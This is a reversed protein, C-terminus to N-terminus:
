PQEKKLSAILPDYVRNAYRREIDWAVVGAIAWPLLYLGPIDSQYWLHFVAGYATWRIVIPLM